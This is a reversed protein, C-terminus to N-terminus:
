KKRSNHNIIVFSLPETSKNSVTLTIDKNKVSFGCIIIGDDLEKASSLRKGNIRVTLNGKQANFPVIIITQKGHRNKLTYTAESKKKLSREYLSYNYREDEGNLMEGKTSVYKRERAVSTLIRNLKFGLAKDVPKCETDRVDGTESMPTWKDDAKLIQKAKEFNAENQVRLMKAVGVLSALEKDQIAVNQATCIQAIVCMILYSYRLRM